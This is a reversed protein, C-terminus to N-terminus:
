FLVFLLLLQLTKYIKLYEGFLKIKTITRDDENENITREKFFIRTNENKYNDPVKENLDYKIYHSLADNDTFVSENVVKCKTFMSYGDGGLGTFDSLSLNYKKKVDLDEGNVKVNYVRRKGTVNIFMGDPDTVVTSNFSTDVDFTMGSVQPFGGSASPYKSVGFELADLLTQGDVEKVFLNNFFPMIDIIDKRTIDGKLLNTRIAGGNVLSVDSKVVGKFSDAVLNGLACERTRCYIFHSDSNGEPRIILDYDVNGVKINLEDEYQKWLGDIFTNMEINVWREKKERTVKKTGNKDTPEPVEAINSTEITGDRKIILQGINALKTGTQTFYVKKGDKDKSTTNYVRHTHGDLVVNVNNIKSVIGNSTYDEVDMGVHTLLIVYDAKKKDRVEDVYKQVNKALEDHNAFFNYIPKGDDDRLTSLYTKSFTLPTVVGIFAIKKDGAEIIKYPPFIPKDEGTKHFNSCIYPTTSNNNINNLQEIGYDFEHNGITTVNFQVKNMLKNIADGQSIAGLTGGQIHDGVDATIVHKYKKKLEDRYLVFGDYGITDNLGCHVDNLHIIVIDDSLEDDLKRDPEVEATKKLNKKKFSKIPFLYLYNIQIIIILFIFAKNM